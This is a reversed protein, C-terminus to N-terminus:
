ARLRPRQLELRRVGPPDLTGSATDGLAAATASPADNNPETESFAASVVTQARASHLVRQKGPLGTSERVRPDSTGPLARQQAQASGPSSLHASLSVALLLLIRWRSPTTM